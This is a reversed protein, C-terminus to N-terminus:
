GDSGEKRPFRMSFNHNKVSHTLGGVSIFDLELDAFRAIKEPTFDGSAEFACRKELGKERRLSVAARCDEYSMNDLMIVDAHLDLGISVEHLNRCELEIKYRDGWAKRIREVAPAPGGAADVHNDKLMVMDYLGMRHNGGGGDIVAAKSLRRLGPLTKRTDLIKTPSSGLAMVHERVTGAIGSLFGLFNLAIREARLIAAAPGNIEAILQGDSIEEGDTAHFVLQFDAMPTIATFCEAAFGLGSLVGSQRSYLGVRVRQDTFLVSSTVDGSEGLDERIALELLQRFDEQLDHRSIDM